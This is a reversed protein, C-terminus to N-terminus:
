DGASPLDSDIAVARRIVLTMHTYAIRHIYAAASVGVDFATGM